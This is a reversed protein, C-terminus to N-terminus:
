RCNARREQLEAVDAQDAYIRTIRPEKTGTERTGRGRGRKRGQRQINSTRRQINETRRRGPRRFHGLPKVHEGAAAVSEGPDAGGAAEGDRVRERADGDERRPQGRICRGRRRRRRRCRAGLNCNGTHSAILHLLHLRVDECAPELPLWAKWEESQQLKRWLANVLEVGITIHGLLEGMENFPMTFGDAAMQNEWLKGCDHFLVGAVLLDRNLHPYVGAVALAARMM